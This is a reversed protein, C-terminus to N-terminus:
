EVGSGPPETDEAAPVPADLLSQICRELEDMTDAPNFVPDPAFCRVVKGDRGVLYKTFYWQPRGLFSSYLPPFDSGSNEM